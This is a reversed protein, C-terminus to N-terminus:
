GLFVGLAILRRAISDSSSTGSVSLSSSISTRGVSSEFGGGRLIDVLADLALALVVIVAESARGVRTVREVTPAAAIRLAPVAGDPELGFVACVFAGEVATEFLWPELLIGRKAVVRVAVAAFAAIAPDRGAGIFV